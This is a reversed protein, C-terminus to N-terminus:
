PIDPIDVTTRFVVYCTPAGNAPLSTHWSKTSPNLVGGVFKVTVVKQATEASQSGTAVLVSVTMPAVSQNHVTGSVDANAGDRVCTTGQPIALQPTSNTTQLTLAKTRVRPVIIAAAVIVVIIAM